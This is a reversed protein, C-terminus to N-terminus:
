VMASRPDGTGVEGNFHGSNRAAEIKYKAGMTQYFLRLLSAAESLSVQSESDKQYAMAKMYTILNNYYKDSIIVERDWDALTYEVALGDVQANIKVTLGIPVPPSVYFISPDASDASFSKVAYVVKGNKMRPRPPCPAYGTFSKLLADDSSHALRGDKGAGIGRLSVGEPLKQVRGAVLQLELTRAFADPKYTAIEKLGQNLYEVMDARTWRMFQQNPRQDNLQGSVVASIHGVTNM